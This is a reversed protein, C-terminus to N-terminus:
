PSGRATVRVGCKPEGKRHLETEGFVRSFSKMVYDAAGWVQQELTRPDAATPGPITEASVRLTGSAKLQPLAGVQDHIRDDHHQDQGHPPPSWSFRKSRAAPEWPRFFWTKIWSSACACANWVGSAPKKGAEACYSSRPTLEVRVCM